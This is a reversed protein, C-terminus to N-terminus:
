PKYILLGDDFDYFTCNICTTRDVLSYNEKGQVIYSLETGPETNKRSDELSYKNYMFLYWNYKNYNIANYNLKEPDYEVITEYPYIIEIYDVTTLYTFLQNEATETVPTKRFWAAFWSKRDIFNNSANNQLDTVGMNYIEHLMKLENSNFDPEKFYQEVNWRYVPFLNSASTKNIYLAELDIIKQEVNFVTLLIIGLNFICYVSIILKYKDFFNIVMNAVLVFTALWLLYYNKSLYYGKAKGEIVLVAIAVMFILLFVLIVHEFKIDKNKWFYIFSLIIIPILLTFNSFVNNYFYGDLNVQISISTNPDGLNPVIYYLFGFLCAPGFILINKKVFNFNIIKKINYESKTDKYVIYSFISLYVVPAYFYYTFFLGYCLFSLLFIFVKKNFLEDEYYKMIIYIVGILTIAHGSYFFGFVMNNLPYGTFYLISIVLSLIFKGKSKTNSIIIYFIMAAMYLMYIDFLIYVIYLNFDDIFPSAFKFMLGVNTYSAAQRTEFNVVTKDTVKNLLFSQEYFDKSTWFHVGPDCTEYAINFPIGFRMISIVITIIGLIVAALVDKKEKYYEQKKKKNVFILIISILCNCITVSILYVPISLTSLILAILSNYCFLLMLSIFIWHILNLPKDSKKLRIFNIFLFINSLLYLVSSLIKLINIM